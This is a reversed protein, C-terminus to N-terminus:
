RAAGLLRDILAIQPVYPRQDSCAMATAAVLRRVAQLADRDEDSLQVPANLQGAVREAIRQAAEGPTEYNHLALITTHAAQRVVECVREKSATEAARRRRIEAVAARVLIAGVPRRQEALMADRDWLEM